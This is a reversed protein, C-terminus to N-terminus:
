AVALCTEQGLQSQSSSLKKGNGTNCGIYGSQVTIFTEESANVGFGSTSETRLLVSDKGERRNGMLCAILRTALTSM